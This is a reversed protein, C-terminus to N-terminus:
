KNTIKVVNNPWHGRYLSTKRKYKEFYFRSINRNSPGKAGIIVVLYLAEPGINRLLYHAQPGM